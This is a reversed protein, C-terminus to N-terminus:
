GRGEERGDERGDGRRGGELFRIVFVGGDM